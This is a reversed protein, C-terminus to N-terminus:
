HQNPEHLTCAKGPAEGKRYTRIVTEPCYMSAKMRSDACIEVDVYVVPPPEPRPKPKPKAKERVESFPPEPEPLDPVTTESPEEIAPDPTVEETADPIEVPPVEAPNETETEREETPRRASVEANDENFPNSWPQKEEIKHAYKKHATKMIGTWMNITMTGGFAARAMPMAVPRGNVKQENGMWGIGVLGDTYGCFWADKNDSTTGTKGRAEPVGIARKGTGSVVVARMLEDMDKAVKPDLVNPHSTPNYTKIVEGDPGVIKTIVMPKLRDGGTMFVSFASAMELPSVEQAGLAMSLYPSFKNSFGFVTNAYEAVTSPGVKDMVRVAPINYSWKFATEVSLSGGYKGNSNDPSWVEGTWADRQVFRDNSVYGDPRLTNQAFATAYVFPKFASGPQRKAQTIVNFENKSYDVGGVEALIRGKYDMMVFAGTNVKLHKNDAVTKRVVEEALKQLESDVTTYIKYGGSSLDIEPFDKKLEAQVHQVFYGAMKLQATSQPPNPNLKPREKKAKDYTAKDIMGEDLMVGLVVNRNEISTEYDKFPNESTPRRVVRILMAAESLTLKELPKNFYVHAAAKIGYAGSGFFIQNLYLEMVQEKSLERELAVATAIDQVKRQYTQDSSTFLRKSLQMSLTSGGQSFKGDKAAERFVRALSIPDVGRHQWFRVDEAAVTADVVHKPIKSYPVYERYEGSVSFLLKGDMSVIKSPPQKLSDALKPLDSLKSEAERYASMFILTGAIFVACFLTLVLIIGRKFRGV